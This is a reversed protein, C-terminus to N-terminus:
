EGEKNNKLIFVQDKPSGIGIPYGRHLAITGGTPIKKGELFTGFSSNEDKITIKEGEYRITCHVGSVGVTNAPFVIDCRKPDRGIVLKGKLPYRKGKFVGAVCYLARDTRAIERDSSVKQDEPLDAPVTKMQAIDTEQPETKKKPTGAIVSTFQTLRKKLAEQIRLNQEKNVKNQHSVFAILIIGLIGAAVIAIVTPTIEFVRRGAEYTVHNDSLFSILEKNSVSWYIGEGRSSSWTNVGVVNGDEDVLPGGSNGGNITAGHQIVEGFSTEKASIIRSVEGKAFTVATYESNLKSIAQESKIDDAAGPFGASYVIQQLLDEPDETWIKLARRDELGKECFLIALDTRKSIAKVQAPVAHDLDSLVLYVDNRIKLGSKGLYSMDDDAYESDVCHRNTVLWTGGNSQGIVFASGTWDTALANNFTSGYSIDWSEDRGKYTGTVYAEGYVRIVSKRVELPAEKALAVPVSLCCIVLVILRIINKM